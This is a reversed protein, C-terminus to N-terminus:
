FGSSNRIDTLYKKAVERTLCSALPSEDFQRVTVKLPESMSVQGQWSVEVRCQITNQGANDDVPQNSENFLLRIQDAKHVLNKYPYGKETYLHMEEAFANQLMFLSMLVFGPVFKM